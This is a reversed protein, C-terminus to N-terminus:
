RACELRKMAATVAPAYTGRAFRRLHGRWHACAAARDGLEDSRLTGLEYSWVEATERPWGGARLAAELEHAAEAHAGRHRHATVRRSIEQAEAARRGPNPRRPDKAPTAAQPSTAPEAAPPILAGWAHREGPEIRWVAGDAGIFRLRGEFLEVDGRAGDERVLFRTGVVEIVGGSVAITLPAARDRPEVEFRVAGSLVRLRGAEDSLRSPGITALHVGDGALQCAAPLAVVAAERTPACPRSTMTMGALELTVADPRATTTPAGSAIVPRAADPVMLARALFLAAVAGAVFGLALAQRTWPRARRRTHAERLRALARAELGAPVPRGAHTADLERLRRLFDDTM